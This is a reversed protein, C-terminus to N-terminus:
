QFLQKKILPGHLCEQRPGRFLLFRDQRSREGPGQLYKQYVTGRIYSEYGEQNVFRCVFRNRYVCDFLACRRTDEAAPPELLVLNCRPNQCCLHQCDSESPVHATALLVAGEHVADVADLVFDSQGSRFGDDCAPADDSDEPGAVSLRSQLLLLLFLAPLLSSFCRQSM